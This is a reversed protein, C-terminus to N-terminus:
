FKINLNIGYTLPTPMNGGEIGQVNGSSNTLEPDITKSKRYLYFLNRAYLSAGINKVIANGPLKFDYGLSLERLKIFTADFIDFTTPGNYHNRAWAQATVNKTNPATNTVSYTGDANFTVDGTVGDAVVGTERIGNAATEPLIGSYMAVKYTQSFFKGGVRSDILFNFRLNKYRIGNQFSWLFDPLVSGLSVLQQTRMYLGDSGIVKQGDPAYVFDYGYLQGYSEGEQAALSVLSTSLDLRSVADSLEIIKNNNKSYNVAFNWDLDRTRVPNVGLILEIGKNNIEGANILKSSYGFADSTPLWIIQNRSTNNYYTFDINLLNNFLQLELGTELSSTIEPKLNLNNLQSPLTYAIKGNIPTVAQYVKYLRYPDTDNGVQAWGLRYKAFSLWSQDKLGPLASLIVSSTVSPYFYSNHKVPLTSSWDNRFTGDLYFTSKWGYSVSGFVSSLEKKYLGTEPNIVTSTANNLSYYNPVILGGSTSIDSVRRNRQLFNTGLNAVLSHDNWSRNLSALLEYNFEGYNQNYEQYSSQSRSNYAIRDQFSYQFVDAYIRGTLSFWSVPSVQIGFNGYLRDRDEQLYSEYASWYPNDIYKTKEDAVTNRYGTRNWARPTGDPRKYDSLKKYDVQVAGWQYAELIINRNSAGTWPRGNSVTKLYNASAFFSVYEGDVNGSVSLSNKDLSANPITGTVNKNTFSVRFASNDNSRSLSINNTNAVGTRFFYNVDNEPYLWPEPKLYQDPYEPDLNYWHLVPTGDLKPGWSEDAAYDVINYTQGDITATAFTTNYGGGYLKQREPLRVVNEFELGTNVEIAIKGTESVGKKTTILIVGNAARSGYLAAASPGKLVNVSAIDDPNIDQITSGVDKGASGHITPSSNLDSNDLPVGDIVYLPQNNGTISNIGRLTIRSSGGLNSGGSIVQLGAIKGALATLPNTPRTQFADASVNQVAYGLAKRERPINLSTIVVESLATTSEQLTINIRESRLAKIEQTSFGIYSFELTRGSEINIRYDGDIDSVAGVRPNDKDVITVGILPHGQTDTIKGTITVTRNNQANLNLIFLCLFLFLNTKIVKM